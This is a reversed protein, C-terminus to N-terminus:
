ELSQEYFIDGVLMRRKTELMRCCKYGCGQCTSMVSKKMGSEKWENVGNWTCFHRPEWTTLPLLVDTVGVVAGPTVCWSRNEQQLRSSHAPVSYLLHGSFDECSHCWYAELLHAWHSIRSKVLCCVPQGWFSGLFPVTGIGWIVSLHQQAPTLVPVSGSREGSLLYPESPSLSIINKNLARGSIIPLYCCTTKELQILCVQDWISYGM